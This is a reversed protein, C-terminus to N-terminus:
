NEKKMIINKFGFLSLVFLFGGFCRTLIQGSLFKAVLAGVGCSLLGSIVIPFVVNFDILKNKAHLIIAVVAMPIFSILNIAQATHQQAGFFIHLIPILITGGGMGMGGLVGGAFGGIAYLIFM